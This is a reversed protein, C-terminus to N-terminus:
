IEQVRPTHRHNPPKLELNPYPIITRSAGWACPGPWAYQAPPLEPVAASQHLAASDTHSDMESTKEPREVMKIRTGGASCLRLTHGNFHLSPLRVSFPSGPPWLKSLELESLIRPVLILATNVSCRERTLTREGDSTRLRLFLPAGM